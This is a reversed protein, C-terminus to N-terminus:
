SIALSLTSLHGNNKGTAEVVVCGVRGVQVADHDLLDVKERSARRAMTGSRARPGPDNAM